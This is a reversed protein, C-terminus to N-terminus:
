DLFIGGLIYGVAILAQTLLVLLVNKMMAPLFIEMDDYRFSGKIVQIAIPLTLLSLLTFVPMYHRMVAWVIWLYVLLTFLSFLYAARKKGLVIPLTRRKVTIDAEVDPFENLLLLNHVLFYSPM